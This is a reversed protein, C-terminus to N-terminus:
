LACLAGTFLTSQCGEPLKRTDVESSVVSLTQSM